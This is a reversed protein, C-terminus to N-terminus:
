EQPFARRGEGGYRGGLIGSARLTDWHTDRRTVSQNFSTLSEHSKRGQNLCARGGSLWPGDQRRAVQMTPYGHAPRSTLEDLLAKARDRNGLLCVCLRPR